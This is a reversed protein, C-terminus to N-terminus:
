GSGQPQRKPLDAVCGLILAVPIRTGRVHAHGHLVAPDIGILTMEEETMVSTYSQRWGPKSQRM